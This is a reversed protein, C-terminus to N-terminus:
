LSAKMDQSATALSRTKEAIAEDMIRLFGRAQHTVINGTNM